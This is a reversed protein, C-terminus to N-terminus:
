SSNYSCVSWRARLMWRNRAASKADFRTGDPVLYTVATEFWTAALTKVVHSARRAIPSGRTEACPTNVPDLDGTTSILM